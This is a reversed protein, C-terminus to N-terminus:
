AFFSNETQVGTTKLKRKNQPMLLLQSWMKPSLMLPELSTLTLYLRTCLLKSAMHEFVPFFHMKPTKLSNKLKHQVAERGYLNLWVLARLM